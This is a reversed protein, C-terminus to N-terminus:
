KPFNSLFNISVQYFHKPYFIKFGLLSVEYTNLLDPNTFIWLHKTEVKPYWTLHFPYSTEQKRKEKKLLCQSDM